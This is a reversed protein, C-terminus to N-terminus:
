RSGLFASTVLSHLEKYESFPEIGRCIANFLFLIERDCRCNSYRARMVNYAYELEGFQHDSEDTYTFAAELLKTYICQIQVRKEVEFMTINPDDPDLHKCPPFPLATPINGPRPRAYYCM